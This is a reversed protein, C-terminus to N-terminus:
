LFNRRVIPGPCKLCLCACICFVLHNTLSVLSCVYANASQNIIFLCLCLPHYSQIISLGTSYSPLKTVYLCYWLLIPVVLSGIRRKIVSSLVVCSLDTLNSSKRNRKVDVNIRLYIIEIIHM